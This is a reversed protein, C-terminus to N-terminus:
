LCTSIHPPLHHEGVDISTREILLCGCVCRSNSSLKKSTRKAGFRPSVQNLFRGSYKSLFRLLINWCTKPTIWVSSSFIDWITGWVSGWFSCSEPKLLDFMSSSITLKPSRLLPPSFISCWGRGDMLQADKFNASLSPLLFDFDFRLSM